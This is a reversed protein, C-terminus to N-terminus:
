LTVKHTASGNDSCVKIIYIGHPLHASPMKITTGASINRAATTRLTKGSIDTLMIYLYPTPHSTTLMWGDPCPTLSYSTSGSASVGDIANATDIAKKIGEFANIKGYGWINASTEATTFNDTTATAALVKRLMEPTMHPCAQLWAAVVGAVFPAAMSTGEMYGYQYNRGSWVESSAVTGTQATAYSSISSAIYSGPATIDPKIRGDATPGHSSFSSAGGIPDSPFQQGQGHSTVFAGVSVIRKGTGGIEAPSHYTDGDTFGTQGGATLTVKTGDAWMHVTGKGETPSVEVVIMNNSRISTIGSSILAHPKYNLPCIETSVTIDGRTPAIPSFVHTTADPTITYEESQCLTQGTSKNIVSVKVSFTRDTEGWIDIDGGVNSNSPTKIYSIATTLPSGTTSAHLPIAGFNGVSGVLLLGQGQLSDALRDFTSTGDHPGIQTGLSMNIVCPKGEAKAYNYIYAIADSINVHNDQMTGYSVLVIDAGTAIGHYPGSTDGGAAIGAVHTGHSYGERDTAASLIESSTDFETGYGFPLPVSAGDIGSHQTAQEWVRKIRLESRTANQFAPHTYDFGADIIGVIVGSGNYPQPLSTGALMMDAGTAPRANNMMSNIPHGTTIYRVGKIHCLSDICASPVQATAINGLDLNLKVGLSAILSRDTNKDMYIYTRICDNDTKPAAVGKPTGKAATHHARLENAAYPSLHAQGHATLGGLLCASLITQFKNM